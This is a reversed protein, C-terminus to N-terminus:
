QATRDIPVWGGRRFRPTNPAAAQPQRARVLHQIDDTTGQILRWDWVGDVELWRMLQTGAYLSDKVEGDSTTLTVYSLLNVAYYDIGLEELTYALPTVAYSAPAPVDGHTPVGAQRRRLAVAARAREEFVGKDAPAAYLGAVRVAQDEDFGVQARAVEIQLAVAGLDTRPFRTPYGSTQEAGGPILVGGNPAPETTDPATQEVGFSPMTSSAPGNSSTKDSGGAADGTRGGVAVWVAAAVLSAIAVLAGIRPLHSGGMSSSGNTATSPTSM